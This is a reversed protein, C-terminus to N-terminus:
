LSDSVRRQDKGRKGIWVMLEAAGPSPGEADAWFALPSGCHHCRSQIDIRQRLMTAIGLADIACCAYRRQGGPLVVTFATPVGSFPYALRIQGDALLLLDQEHLRALEDTLSGAAGAGIRRRLEEVPVPRGDEIFARLIHQLLATQRDARRATWRAEMEPDVLEDATKIELAV